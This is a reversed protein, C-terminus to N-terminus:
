GIAVAVDVWKKASAVSKSRAAPDADYFSAETSVTINVVKSNAKTLEERFKALYDPDLSRFHPSYPEINHINLKTVVEAPFQILDMGHLSANRDRNGPSDIYARFPYSAIAIRDRPASPFPIHPQPADAASATPVASAILNGVVLASASELFTRRTLTTM